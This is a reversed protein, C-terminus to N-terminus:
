ASQGADHGTEFTNLGIAPLDEDCKPEEPTEGQEDDPDRHEGGDAVAVSHTTEDAERSDDRERDTQKHPARSASWFDSALLREV